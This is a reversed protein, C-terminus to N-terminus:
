KCVCMLARYPGDGDRRSVQYIAYVDDSAQVERGLLSVDPKYKGMDFRITQLTGGSQFLSNVLVSDAHSKTSIKLTKM